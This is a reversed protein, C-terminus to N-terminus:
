RPQESPSTETNGFKELEAMLELRQLLVPNDSRMRGAAKELWDVAGMRSLQLAAAAGLKEDALLELMQAGWEAQREPDDLMGDTIRAMAMAGVGPDPHQMAAKLLTAADGPPLERGARSLVDAAIQPPTDVIRAALRDIRGRALMLYPLLSDTLGQDTASREALAALVGPQAEFLASRLGAAYPGGPNAAFRTLMSTAQEPGGDLLDSRATEYTWQNELGIAAARVNFLAIWYNASEDHRRVAQPRYAQLWKLVAEPATGAPDSRLRRVYDYLVADREAPSLGPHGAVSELEATIADAGADARTLKALAAAGERVAPAFLRAQEAAAVRVPDVRDPEPYASWPLLLALGALLAVIAHAKSM